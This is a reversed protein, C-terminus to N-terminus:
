KLLFAFLLQSDGSILTDFTCILRDYTLHSRLVYNCYCHRQM